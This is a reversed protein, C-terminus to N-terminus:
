NTINFHGTREGGMGKLAAVVGEHERVGFGIIIATCGPLVNNLPRSLHLHAHRVNRSCYPYDFTWGM